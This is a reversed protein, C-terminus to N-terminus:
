PAWPNSSTAESSMDSPLDSTDHTDANGEIEVTAGQRLAAAALLDIADRPLGQVPLTRTEEVEELDVTVGGLRYMLADKLLASLIRFGDNERMLVHPVYASAEEAWKEQGPAGPVFRVLDDAATFVRMLGPM